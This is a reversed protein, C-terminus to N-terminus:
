EKFISINAFILLKNRFAYLVLLTSDMGSPIRKSLYLRM